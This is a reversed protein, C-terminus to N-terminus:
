EEKIIVKRVAEGVWLGFNEHKVVGEENFKYELDKFDTKLKHQIGRSSILMGVILVKNGAKTAEGIMGRIKEVNADRINKPADDQLNWAKVDNFGGSAKVEKAIKKMVGINRKNYDPNVPGHGVIIVTEKKPNSSIAKAHDTLIEALLPNDDMYHAFVIKAKSKVREVPPWEPKDSLGFIYKIQDAVENYENFFAMVVVITKAGAEELHNIGEQIHSSNGMAMGFAVTTPFTNSIKALSKALSDNWVKTGGHAIVIVGVDKKLDKSSVYVEHDPAMMMMMADLEEKTRNEMGPWKKMDEWSHGSHKAHSGSDHTMGPPMAQKNDTGQVAEPTKGQTTGQTAMTGQQMASMDHSTEEEGAFSSLISILFTAFVGIAMLMLILKINKKFM